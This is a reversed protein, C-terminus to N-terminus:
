PQHQVGMLEDKLTEVQRHLSDIVADLVAPDITLEFTAPFHDNLQDLEALLARATRSNRPAGAFQSRRNAAFLALVSDPLTEPTNM